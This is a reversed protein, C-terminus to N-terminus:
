SCRRLFPLDGRDGASNRFQLDDYQHGGLGRTPTNSRSAGRALHVFGQFGGTGNRWADFRVQVAQKSRAEIDKEAAIM